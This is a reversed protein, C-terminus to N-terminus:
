YKICTDLFKIHSLTFFSWDLWARRQIEKRQGLSEEHAERPRSWVVVLPSLPRDRDLLWTSTASASVGWPWRGRRCRTLGNSGGGRGWGPEGDRGRIRGCTYKGPRQQSKWSLKATRNPHPQQSRQTESQGTPRIQDPTIEAPDPLRRQHVLIRSKIGEIHRTQYNPGTEHGHLRDGMCKTRIAKQGMSWSVGYHESPPLNAAQRSIKHWKISMIRTEDTSRYSRM